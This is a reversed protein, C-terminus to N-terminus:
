RLGIKKLINTQVGGVGLGYCPILTSQKCSVAKQKAGAHIYTERLNLLFPKKLHNVWIQPYLIQIRSLSIKWLQSLSLIREVWKMHSWFVGMLFTGQQYRGKPNIQFIPFKYLMNCCIVSYDCENRPWRVVLSNIWTQFLKNHCTRKWSISYSFLCLPNQKALELQMWKAKGSSIKATWTIGELSLYGIALLALAPKSRCGGGVWWRLVTELLM